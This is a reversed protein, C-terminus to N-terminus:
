LASCADVNVVRVARLCHCFDIGNFGNVANIKKEAFHVAVERVCMKKPRMLAKRYDLAHVAYTFGMCRGFPIDTAIAAQDRSALVM